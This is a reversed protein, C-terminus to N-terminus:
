TSEWKEGADNISDGRKISDDIKFVGFVYDTKTKIAQEASEHISMVEYENNYVQQTSVKKAICYKM